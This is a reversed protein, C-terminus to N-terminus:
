PSGVHTCYRGVFAVRHSGHLFGFIREAFGKAFGDIETIADRIGVLFRVDPVDGIPEECARNLVPQIRALRAGIGFALLAQRDARCFAAQFLQALEGFLEGGLAFIEM